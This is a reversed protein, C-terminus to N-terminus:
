RMPKSGRASVPAANRAICALIAAMSFSSSRGSSTGISPLRNSSVAPSRGRGLEGQNTWRCVSLVTCSRMSRTRASDLPMLAVCRTTDHVSWTDHSSFTRHMATGFMIPTMAKAMTGTASPSGTVNNASRASMFSFLTSSTNSAALTTMLGYSSKVAARVSNAAVAPTFSAHSVLRTADVGWKILLRHLSSSTFFANVVLNNGTSSPMVYRVSASTFCENALWRRSEAAMVDKRAHASFCPRASVSTVSNSQTSFPCSNRDRRSFKRPGEKSEMTPKLAFAAMM